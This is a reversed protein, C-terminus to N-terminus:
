GVLLDIIEAAMSKEVGAIRICRLPMCESQWSNPKASVDHVVIDFAISINCSIM